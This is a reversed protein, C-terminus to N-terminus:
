VESYITSIYPYSENKTGNHRCAVCMYNISNIFLLLSKHLILDMIM